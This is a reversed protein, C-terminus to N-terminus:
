PPLSMIFGCVQQDPSPVISEGPGCLGDISHGDVCRGHVLRFGPKCLSCEGVSSGVCEACNEICAVCTLTSKDVHYGIPCHTQCTGSVYPLQINLVIFASELKSSDTVQKGDPTLLPVLYQGEPCSTCDYETFPRVCAACVSSCPQCVINNGLGTTLPEDIESSRIRSSPNPKVRNRHLEKTDWPINGSHVIQLAGYPTTGFPCTAVCQRDQTVYRRCGGLCQDAAPGTCGGPACEPHCTYVDLWKSDDVVYKSFPAFWDKPPPRKPNPPSLRIPFESTGYVLLRVSRWYGKIKDLELKQWPQLMASGVYNDLRVRWVGTANEGWLQVTTVPWRLLGINGSHEDLKRPPQLVTETGSPSILTLQLLGRRQYVIDAYVQVHELYKVPAGYESSNPQSKSAGRAKPQCGSFNLSITHNFKGELIISFTATESHCEHHAPLGRWLEGLRVMKGADMLGYGYLQSYARGVANVTFNGDVFASPNATLLTIYQVDRWSLRPNAELLLAIIGAAMPAAASTGSHKNTCKHEVDITS